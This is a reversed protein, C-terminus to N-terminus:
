EKEDPWEHAPKPADPEIRSEVFAIVWRSFLSTVLCAAAIILGFALLLPM